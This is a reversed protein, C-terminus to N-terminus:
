TGLELSKLDGSRGIGNGSYMRSQFGTSFALIAIVRSGTQLACVLSSMGSCEPRKVYVRSAPRSTALHKVIFSELARRLHLQSNGM